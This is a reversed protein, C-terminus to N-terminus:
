HTNESQIRLIRKRFAYFKLTPMISVISLAREIKEMVLGRKTIKEM